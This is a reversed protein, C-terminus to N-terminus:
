GTLRWKGAIYMVESRNPEPEEEESLRGWKSGEVVAEAGVQFM